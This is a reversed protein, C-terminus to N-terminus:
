GEVDPASADTSLVILGVNDLLAGALLTRTLLRDLQRPADITADTLRRGNSQLSYRLRGRPAEVTASAEGEPPAKPFATQWEGAPLHQLAQEAIKIAEFAELLLVVLRAHVDGGDQVIRRVTLQDYAAYPEDLRVDVELGSARAMPGRLGFQAAVEHSLVGVDVTRALLAHEDITRDVLQFLHRNTQALLTTLEERQADSLDRRVGGPICVDPLAPRDSLLTMATRAQTTVAQVTTQQSHLGLVEFIGHLTGLHSSLREIEALACRLYVARAPVEVGALTELAQCFVLTHAHSSTGSIRSVLHVGQEIDLRSLREACGRENYGARYDVDTVVEGEVKLVMRQPGRWIPAFPGVTLNYGM